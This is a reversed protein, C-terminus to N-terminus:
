CMPEGKRDRLSLFSVADPTVAVTCLSPLPWEPFLIGYPTLISTKRPKRVAHDTKRDEKIRRERDEARRDGTRNIRM